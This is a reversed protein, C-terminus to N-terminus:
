RRNPSFLRKGAPVTGHEKACQGELNIKRGQRVAISPCIPIMLGYKEKWFPPTSRSRRRKTTLHEPIEGGAKYDMIGLHTSWVRKGTKLDLFVSRRM